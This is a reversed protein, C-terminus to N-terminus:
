QVQTGAYKPGLHFEELQDAAVDGKTGRKKGGGGREAPHLLSGPLQSSAICLYAAVHEPAGRPQACLTTFAKTSITSPQTVRSTLHLRIHQLYRFATCHEIYPSLRRTLRILKYVVVCAGLQADM